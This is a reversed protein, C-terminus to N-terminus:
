KTEKSIWDLFTKNGSAIDFSIACPCTYSHVAGVKKILNQVLAKKTKVIMAWERSREIRGKWRYISNIPFINVCAALRERILLDGIRKAEKQSPATIYVISYKM